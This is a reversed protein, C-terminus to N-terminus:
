KLFNALTEGTDALHEVPFKKKGILSKWMAVFGGPYMTLKKHVNPHTFESEFFAQEWRPLSAVSAERPVKTSGLCVEGYEDVNWYPARFLRTKPTPRENDALARIALHGESACFILAPQPFRKGSLQNLEDGKNRSYFMPRVAPPTWWVVSEQTRMLVNSPLFEVPITGRLGELLTNVDSKELPVGPGMSAGGASGRQVAHKTVYISPPQGPKISYSDRDSRYVLLAERLEYSTTSNLCIQAEM